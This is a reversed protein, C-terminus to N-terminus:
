AILPEDDRPLSRALKQREYAPAELPLKSSYKFGAKAMDKFYTFLFRSVGMKRYQAVHVLEHALLIDDARKEESVFWVSNGITMASKRVLKLYLGVPGGIKLKVEDLDVGDDLLNKRELWTRADARVAITRM